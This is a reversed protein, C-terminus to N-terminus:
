RILNKEEPTLVERRKQKRRIAAKKDNLEAATRKAKDKASSM